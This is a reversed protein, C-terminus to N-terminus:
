GVYEPRVDTPGHAHESPLVTLVTSAADCGAPAETESLLTKAATQGVTEGEGEVVCDTAGEGVFDGAAEGEGEADGDADGTDGDPVGDTDGDTDGQRVKWGTGQPAAVGAPGHVCTYTVPAFVRSEKVSVSCPPAVIRIPADVPPLALPVMAQAPPASTM